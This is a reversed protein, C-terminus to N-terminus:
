RQTSYTYIYFTIIIIHIIFLHQHVHIRVQDNHTVDRLLLDGNENIELYNSITSPTSFHLHSPDTIGSVSIDRKTRKSAKLIQEIEEETRRQRFTKSATAAATEAADDASFDSKDRMIQDFEDLLSITDTLVRKHRVSEDDFQEEHLNVIHLGNIERKTRSEHNEENASITTTTTTATATENNGNRKTRLPSLKTKSLLDNRTSFSIKPEEHTFRGVRDWVVRVRPRGQARCPMKVTDGEKATVDAPAEVFTPVAVSVIVFCLFM